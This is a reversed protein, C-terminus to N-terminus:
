YHSSPFQRETGPEWPQFTLAPLAFPSRAGRLLQLPSFFRFLFPWFTKVRHAGTPPAPPWASHLTVVPAPSCPQLPGCDQKGAPSSHPSTFAPAGQGAQTWVPTRPLRAIVCGPLPLRCTRGRAQTRRLLLVGPLSSRSCSPQGAQWPQPRAEEPRWSLPRPVCPEPNPEFSMPPATHSLPHRRSARMRM